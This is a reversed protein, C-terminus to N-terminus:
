EKKAASLPSYASWWFDETVPSILRASSWLTGGPAVLTLWESKKQGAACSYLVIEALKHHLPFESPAGTLWTDTWFLLNGLVKSGHGYHAWIYIDPSDSLIAQVDHKQQGEVTGPTHDVIKLKRAKYVAILLDKRRMLFKSYDYSM